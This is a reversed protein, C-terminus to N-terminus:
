QAEEEGTEREKSGIDMLSGKLELLSFRM